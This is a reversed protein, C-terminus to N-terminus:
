KCYDSKKGSAPDGAPLSRVRTEDDSPLLDFWCVAHWALEKESAHAQQFAPLKSAANQQRLDYVGWDFFVNKDGILGVKTAIVEGKKVAVAPMVRETRSDGAQPAPFKEALASFKPTLERLHGLRYMMGCPHIVDFTYQIEAEKYQGGRVVMGDFPATVSVANSAENDFRLGGHAKYNGGRTQGPYLVSTAKSLDAPASLSFPEPCAPPTGSVALWKDQGNWDWQVSGDLEVAPVDDSTAAQETSTIKPSDKKNSTVRWGVFGILAVVAIIIVLEIVHFGDQNLKHRM